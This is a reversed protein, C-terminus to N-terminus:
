INDVHHHNQIIVLELYNRRWKHGAAVGLLQVELGELNDEINKLIDMSIDEEGVVVVFCTDDHNQCRCRSISVYKSIIDYDNEILVDEIKGFVTNAAAIEVPNFLKTKTRGEDANFYALRKSKLKESEIQTM